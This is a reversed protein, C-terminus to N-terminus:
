KKHPKFEAQITVEVDEAINKVVLKPIKIGFEATKVKFIATGDLKEKNVVLTAPIEVNKKVGHITLIGKAKVDYKGDKTLDPFQLIEGDFEASPFKESEMYNENFHEEMLKQDFRFSKVPIKVILKKTQANLAATSIKSKAKIDEVPTSSFFSVETNKSLWIQSGAKQVVLFSLLFISLKFNSSM